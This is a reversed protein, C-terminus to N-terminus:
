TAALAKEAVARIYAESPDKRSDRLHAYIAKAEDKKGQAALRESLLLCAKTMQIREWGECGDAAKTIAGAAAGAGMNALGWGAAIRVERDPDGLAQQLADVSGADALVGLAQVVALRCAGKAQGLAARLPEVAGDRLTVLAMAAADCLDADTLFKGLTAVVEKRGFAQLEQMVYRQVGKSRDGGLQSALALAYDRRADDGPMKVVCLGLVHLAYKAKIPQVDDGEQPEVLMGVLGVVADRGRKQIEAVAKEIKDKDIPTTEIQRKGDPGKEDKVVVHCYMGREDPDPMEAVLRKLLEDLPEM